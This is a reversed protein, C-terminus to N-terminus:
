QTYNSIPAITVVGKYKEEIAEALNNQQVTESRLGNCIDSWTRYPSSELWNTLMERLRDQINNETSKIGRLTGVPIGLALGLNYWDKAAKILSSFVDQLDDICLQNKHGQDDEGVCLM